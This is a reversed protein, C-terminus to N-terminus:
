FGSYAEKLGDFANQHKTTWEFFKPETEIGTTTSKKTRAKKM